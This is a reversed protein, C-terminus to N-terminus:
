KTMQQSVTSYMNHIIATHNMRSNASNFGRYDSWPHLDVNVWEGVLVRILGDALEGFLNVNGTHFDLFDNACTVLLVLEQAVPPLCSPM